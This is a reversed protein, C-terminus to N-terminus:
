VSAAQRGRPRLKLGERKLIAAVAQSSWADNGATTQADSATLWAAIAALTAPSEYRERMERIISQEAAVPMYEHKGDDQEVLEYGFRRGFTRKGGVYGGAKAKAARGGRMREKFQEREFEAFVGLMGAFARGTPTTLDLEPELCVLSWGDKASREILAAFSALSRSLRDFKAVVLVDGRQLTALAPGLDPRDDPALAGSTDDERIMATITQERYSAWARIKSEQDDMSYSGNDREQSRRCYGIVQM